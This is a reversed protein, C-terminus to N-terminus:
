VPATSADDACEARLANIDQKTCLLMDQVSKIPHRECLFFCPFALQSAKAFGYFPRELIGTQVTFHLKLSVSFHSATSLQFACCWSRAHEM